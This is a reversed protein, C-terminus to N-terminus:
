RAARHPGHRARAAARRSARGHGDRARAPDLWRSLPRDHRALARAARAGGASDVREVAALAAQAEGPTIPNSYIYFPSTERLYSIIPEGAVVYGGNVGFAKGLTGILLDVPGSGTVEETGRGTAGFGGVGHSDDAVVVVNEAFHPDYAAALARIRDLPAHDGRMSFVGDTVVVARRCKGAAAELARELEGLDLHRISTSRRRARWRSRM